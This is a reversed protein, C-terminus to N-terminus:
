NREAILPRLDAESERFWDPQRRNEYGLVAKASECLANKLADWKVEVDSNEDWVGEVKERVERLYRGNTTERGHEDVSRGMLESVNWRKVGAGGSCRRFYRRRGVVLKARLMRHDTNCDAGHMVSVDLCKRSHVQRMIFYDICHWNRSKPHQWTQTHVDRKRFWSNCVTAENTSLFSLLDRGADNLDGYGHPGREHWWEDAVDRSGVRANFDRLMVFCEDSPIESLADQLTAYFINKDERSAAFTPAYYSLIHLRDRSGNGVKSVLLGEM